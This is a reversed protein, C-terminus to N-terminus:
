SRSTTGYPPNTIIADVKIGDKYLQNMVKICDDNYLKVENM